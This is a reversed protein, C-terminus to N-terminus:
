RLRDRDVTLDEDAVALKEPHKADEIAVPIARWRQDGRKTIAVKRDSRRARRAHRDREGVLERPVMNVWNQYLDSNVAVILSTQGEQEVHAARTRRKTQSRANVGCVVGVRVRPQNLLADAHQCSKARPGAHHLLEATAARALAVDDRFSCCVERPRPNDPIM